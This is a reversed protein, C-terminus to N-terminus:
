IRAIQRPGVADAGFTKLLVLAMVLSLACEDRRRLAKLARAGNQMARHRAPFLPARSDTADPFARGRPRALAAPLHTKRHVFPERLPVPGRRRSSIPSHRNADRHWSSAPEAKFSYEHMSAHINM